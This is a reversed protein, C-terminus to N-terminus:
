NDKTMGFAAEFAPYQGSHEEYYVTGVSESPANNDGFYKINVFAYDTSGTTIGSEKTFKFNNDSGKYDTFEINSNNGNKNVTVTYYDNFPMVLTEQGNDFSLTASGDNTSIKESIYDEDDNYSKAGIATGSFNLKKNAFEPQNLDVKKIDYGGAVVSYDPEEEQGVTTLTDYGFDAYHLQKKLDKGKLEFTHNQTKSVMHEDNDWEDGLEEIMNLYYNRVNVDQINTTIAAIVQDKTPRTDFSDTQPYGNLYYKYVNTTFVNTDGQRVADFVEEGDHYVVSNIEGTNEDIGFTVYEDENIEGNSPGQSFRVDDLKYSTYEKGNYIFINTAIRSTDGINITTGDSAYGIESVMSTVNSNSKAAEFSITGTTGARIIDTSNNAHNGSGACATLTLLSTLISIKKM